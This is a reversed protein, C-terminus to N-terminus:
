VIHAIKEGIERNFPLDGCCGLVLGEIGKKEEQTVGQVPVWCIQVTRHAGFAPAPQEDDEGPLIHACSHNVRM